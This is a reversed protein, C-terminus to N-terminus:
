KVVTLNYTARTSFGGFATSTGGFVLTHTGRPLPKLMVYYGDAVAPETAPPEIGLTNNAVATFTFLPSPALYSGLNPIAEGDVTAELTTVTSALFSACDRLEQEPAETSSCFFNVLPILVAKTSAIKCSRTASGGTTGALLVARGDDGKVGNCKVAGDAFPHGPGEVTQGMTTWWQANWEGYTKGFPASGPAYVDVAAGATPAALALAGAVLALVLPVTLRRSLSM